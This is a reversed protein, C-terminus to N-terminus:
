KGSLLWKEGLEDLVCSRATERIIQSLEGHFALHSAALYDSCTAGRGSEYEQFPTFERAFDGGEKARETVASVMEKEMERILLTFEVPLSSDQPFQHAEKSLLNEHLFEALKEPDKDVFAWLLLAHKRPVDLARDFIREKLKPWKDKPYDYNELYIPYPLDPVLVARVILDVLSKYRALYISESFFQGRVRNAETTDRIFSIVDVNENMFTKGYVQYTRLSVFPIDGQLSLPRAEPFQYVFGHKETFLAHVPQIFAENKGTYPNAFYFGNWKSDLFVLLEDMQSLQGGEKRRLEVLKSHIRHTLRPIALLPVNPMMGDLYVRVSEWPPPETEMAPKETKKERGLFVMKKGSKVRYQWSIVERFGYLYQNIMLDPYAPLPEPVRGLHIFGNDHDPIGRDSGDQLGTVLELVNDWPYAKLLQQTELGNTKKRSEALAGESLEEMFRLHPHESIPSEALAKIVSKEIKRALSEYKKASKKYKKHIRGMIAESDMDNVDSALVVSASGILFLMLFSFLTGRICFAWDNKWFRPTFM